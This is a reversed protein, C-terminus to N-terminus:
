PALLLLGLLCIGTIQNTQGTPDARSHLARKSLPRAHGNQAPRLQTPRLRSTKHTCAGKVSDSSGTRVVPLAGHLLKLSNPRVVGPVQHERRPPFAHARRM